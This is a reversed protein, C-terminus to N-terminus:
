FCILVKDILYLIIIFFFVLPPSFVFGPFNQNLYSLLQETKNFPYIVFIIFSM